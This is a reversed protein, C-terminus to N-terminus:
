NQQFKGLNGGLLSMCPRARLKKKLNLDEISPVSAAHGASGPQVGSTQDLWPHLISADRWPTLMALFPEVAM